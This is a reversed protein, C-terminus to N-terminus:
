RQSQRRGRRAEKRARMVSYIGDWLDRRANLSKIAADEAEAWLRGDSGCVSAMLQSAMPGHEEADLGIHRNLYYRFIDLDGGSEVNLEDVIKQFLGPLLDERGFTFASAVACLSGQEITEFTTEVFARACDAVRAADLADAVSRGHRIEELFGDIATTKAGCQTMARRYLEFHSLFAGRGDVDSEEALVIENVFRCGLANDAPVWPVEVCCLRRQLTKLLSMFDWVAFVHLEMFVHLSELCDIERYVPHNLLALRLPALQREVRELEATLMIKELKTKVRHDRHHLGSLHAGFM